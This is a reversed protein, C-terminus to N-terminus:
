GSSVVFTTVMADNRDLVFDELDFLVVDLVSLLDTTAFQLYNLEGNAEKQFREQDHTIM